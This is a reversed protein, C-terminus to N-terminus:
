LRHQSCFFPNVMRNRMLQQCDVNPSWLKMHKRFIGMWNSREIHYLLYSYHEIQLYQGSLGYEGLTYSRHWPLNEM